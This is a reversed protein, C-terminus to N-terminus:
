LKRRQFKIQNQSLLTMWQNRATTEGDWYWDKIKWRKHVAHSNRGWDKKHHSSCKQNRNGNDNGLREWHWELFSVFSIDNEREQRRALSWSVFQVVRSHIDEPKPFIFLLNSTSSSSSSSELLSSFSFLILHFSDAGKWWSFHQRSLWLVLCSFPPLFELLWIVRSFLGEEVWKLCWERRTIGPRTTRWVLTQFM